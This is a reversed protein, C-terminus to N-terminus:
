NLTGNQDYIRAAVLINSLLTWAEEEIGPNKSERPGAVNLVMGDTLGEEERVRVLWDVIKRIYDMDIPSIRKLILARKGHKKCFEVTRKTGGSLEGRTLILTADSQKVNAETRFLYDESTSETMQDYELPVIGDEAKRGKPILGGYPFVFDKAARLAARDVGTQGGSIIKKLLMDSIACPKLDNQM